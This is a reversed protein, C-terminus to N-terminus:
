FANVYARGYYYPSSAHLENLAKLDYVQNLDSTLFGAGGTGMRDLASGMDRSFLQRKVSEPYGRMDNNQFPNRTSVPRSYKGYLPVVTERKVEGTSRNVHKALMHNLSNPHSTIVVSEHNSNPAVSTPRSWMAVRRASHFNPHSYDIGKYHNYSSAVVARAVKQNTDGHMSTNVFRADVKHTHPTSQDFAIVHSHNGRIGQSIISAGVPPLGVSPRSPDSLHIRDAPAKLVAMRNGNLGRRNHNNNYLPM